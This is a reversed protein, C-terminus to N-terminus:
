TQLIETMRFIPANDFEFEGAEFRTLENTTTQSLSGEIAFYLNKKVDKM